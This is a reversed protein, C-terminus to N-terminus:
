GKKNGLSGSNNVTCHLEGKAADIVDVKVKIPYFVHRFIM